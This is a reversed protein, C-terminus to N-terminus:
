YIIPKAHWHGLIVQWSGAGVHVLGIIVLEDKPVAIHNENTFRDVQKGLRRVLDEVTQPIRIQCVWRSCGSINIHIKTTKMGALLCPNKAARLKLDSTKTADQLPIGIAGDELFFFIPMELSCKQKRRTGDYPIWREQPIVRFAVDSTPIYASDVVCAKPRTDDLVYATFFVLSTNDPSCVPYIYKCPDDVGLLQAFYSM